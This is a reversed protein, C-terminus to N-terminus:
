LKPDVYEQAVVRNVLKGDRIGAYDQTSSFEWYTVHKVLGAKVPNQHIYDFCIQPYQKEHNTINIHTIGNKVFFPPTIGDPCNVCEAKTKERFLKGSFGNQINFARTYSRLMIGISYNFTRVTLAQSSTLGQSKAIPLEVENVLVMFHFHNPMLCWALIDAYPLIHTKIKRLFFFYNEGDLFIKRRNNGQNYIHYIYGEEFNM